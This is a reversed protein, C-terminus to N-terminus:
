FGAKVLRIRAEELEPYELVQGPSFNEMKVIKMIKGDSTRENGEIKIRGIRVPSNAAAPSAIGLRKLRDAQKEAKQQIVKILDQEKKEIEAKQVRLAELEDLMQDLSKVPPPSVTTPVPIQPSTGAPVYPLPQPLQSTFAPAPIGQQVAPVITVGPTPILQSKPPNPSPPQTYCHGSILLLFVPILLARTTM